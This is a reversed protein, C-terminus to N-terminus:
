FFETRLNPQGNLKSRGFLRGDFYVNVQGYLGGAFGGPKRRDLVLLFILINTEM